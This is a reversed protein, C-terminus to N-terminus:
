LQLCLMVAHVFHCLPILSTIKKHNNNHQWMNRSFCTHFMNSTCTVVYVTCTILVFFWDSCWLILVFFWDSCWLIKYRTCTFMYMNPMLQSRKLAELQVEKLTAKQRGLVIFHDGSLFIINTAVFFPCETRYYMLPLVATARAWNGSMKWRWSKCTVTVM